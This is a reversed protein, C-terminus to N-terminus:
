YFNYIMVRFDISKINRPFCVYFGNHDKLCKHRELIKISKESKCKEPNLYIKNQKKLDIYCKKHLFRGDWDLYNKNGNKRKSGILPINKKSKCCICKKNTLTM